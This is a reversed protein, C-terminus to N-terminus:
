PQKRGSFEAMTKVLREQAERVAPDGMHPLTKMMAAGMRMGLARMKEENEQMEKPRDSLADPNPYRKQLRQAEPAMKAMRDSYANMAAAVSRADGAQELDALYKEMAGLMERQFRQLDAYKGGGCGAALVAAAVVALLWKANM